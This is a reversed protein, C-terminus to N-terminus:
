LKHESWKSLFDKSFQILIHLLIQKTTRRTAVLPSFMAFRQHSVRTKEAAGRSFEGSARCGRHSLGSLDKLCLRFAVVTFRLVSCLGKIIEDERM